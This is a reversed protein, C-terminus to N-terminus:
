IKGTVEGNETITINSNNSSFLAAKNTANEPKIQKSLIQKKGKEVTLNGSECGGIEVTEVPVVSNTNGRNQKITIECTDTKSGDVTKVTVTVKGDVTISKIKGTKSVSLIDSDSSSWIVNKNSAELPYVITNLQLESSVYM